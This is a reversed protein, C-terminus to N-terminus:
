CMAIAQTAAIISQSDITSLVSEDSTEPGVGNEKGWAVSRTVLTAVSNDVSAIHSLIQAVSWDDPRPRIEGFVSNVHAVSELLRARAADLYDLVEALKKQM